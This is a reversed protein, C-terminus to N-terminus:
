VAVKAEIAPYSEYWPLMDKIPQYHPHTTLDDLTPLRNQALSLAAMEHPMRISQREHLNVSRGLQEEVQAFHNQYVHLDGYSITLEGPKYGTLWCLIHSLLAYQSLNFPVGLFLDASRQYMHLNLTNNIIGVQFLVHCPPLTMDQIVKPNWASVIHRRSNPNTKLEDILKTIQDAHTNELYPHGLYNYEDGFNRWQVGYGPGITGEENAWEDWISVNREQLWKVDNRGLLMWVLEFYISRFHIKKTTLIPFPDLPVRLQRGFVRRTGVGTRDDSDTGNQMVDLLLDHYEKM